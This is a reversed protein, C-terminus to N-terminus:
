VSHFPLLSDLRKLNMIKKKLKLISLSVPVFIGVFLTSILAKFPENRYHYLTYILLVYYKVELYIPILTKINMKYNEDMFELGILRLLIFHIQRFFKWKELPSQSSFNHKINKLKNYIKWM